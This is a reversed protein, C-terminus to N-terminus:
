KRKKALEKKLKDLPLTNIVDAKTLWSKRAVGIGLRLFAAHNNHHADPNIVCKV